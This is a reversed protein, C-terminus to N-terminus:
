PMMGLIYPMRPILWLEYRFRDEVRRATQYLEFGLVALWELTAIESHARCLPSVVSSPASSWSPCWGGFYLGTSFVISYLHDVGAESCATEVSSYLVPLVM